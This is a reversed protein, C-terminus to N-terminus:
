KLIFQTIIAGDKLILADKLRTCIFAHVSILVETESKSNQIRERGM